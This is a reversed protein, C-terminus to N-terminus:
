RPGRGCARPGRGGTWWWPVDLLAELPGLRFARRWLTAALAAVATFAVVTRVADAVDGSRLAPSWAHLALLHAVYVTLALRGMAVLPAVLRPLADALALSCGLVLAASGMSGILWPPMQSHPTALLLEHWATRSAAEGVVGALRVAAAPALAATAAGGLVLAIRTAQSRLDRRGLWMGLLFPASWVPLPFPGAFVRYPISAPDSWAAARRAFAEPYATSGLLVAVPGLLALACALALLARDPLRLALIAVLFLAAYTPLIVFVRHDLDQLLLGLPLLLAARWALRWRASALSRTRSAALLSVGIGAVLVFLISARGHPLAYLRGAVDTLRTPGIHVALMGVIALARALDIGGIRPRPPAAHEGAEAAAGAGAEAGAGAGAGAGASAAVARPWPRSTARELPVRRSM